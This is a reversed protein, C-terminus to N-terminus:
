RTGSAPPSISGLGARARSGTTRAWSATAGSAVRARDVFTGYARVSSQAGLATGWRGTARLHDSTGAHASVLGGHTDAASRTIVNIVGNM